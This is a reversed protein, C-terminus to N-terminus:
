CLWTVILCSTKWVWLSGIFLRVRRFEPWLVIENVTYVWTVMPKYKSYYIRFYVCEAAAYV